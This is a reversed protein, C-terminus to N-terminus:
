TVYSVEPDHSTESMSAPPMRRLVPYIKKYSLYICTLVVIIYLPITWINFDQNPKANQLIYKTKESESNLIDQIQQVKNFNLAIFESFKTEGFKLPKYEYNEISTNLVPLEIRKFDIKSNKYTKLHFNNVIVEYDNSVEVLYSEKLPVNEKTSGCLQHVVVQNPIILMWKQQELKEMKIYEVNVPTQQCRSFNENFKLM